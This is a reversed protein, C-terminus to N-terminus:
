CVFVFRLSLLANSIAAAAAATLILTRPIVVSRIHANRVGARETRPSFDPSSLCVWCPMSGLVEQIHCLVFKSNWGDQKPWFVHANFSPPFGATKLLVWVSLFNPKYLKQGYLRSIQALHAFCFTSSNDSIQSHLWSHSVDFQLSCGIIILFCCDSTSFCSTILGHFVNVDTFSLKVITTGVILLLTSSSEGPM